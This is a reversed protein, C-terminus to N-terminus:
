LFSSISLVYNRSENNKFGGKPPDLKIRDGKSSFDGRMKKNPGDIVTYKGDNFLTVYGNAKKDKYTFTARGSPSSGWSGKLKTVSPFKKKFEGQVKKMKELMKPSGGGAKVLAKDGKNGIKKLAVKDSGSVEFKEKPKPITIKEEKVGPVPSKALGPNEKIKKGIDADRKGLAVMWNTIPQVKPKIYGDVFKGAVMAAPKVFIKLHASIMGGVVSSGYKKSFDDVGRTLMKPIELVGNILKGIGSIAGVIIKYIFSFCTRGVYSLLPIFFDTFGWGGEAENIEGSYTNTDFGANQKKSKKKDDDVDTTKGVNYNTTQTSASATGKLWKATIEVSGDANKTVFKQMFPAKLCFTAFFDGIWSSVGLAGALGKNTPNTIAAKTFKEAWAKTTKNFVLSAAGTGPAVNAPATIVDKIGLLMSVSGLILKATGKVINMAKDAKGVIKSGALIDRGGTYMGLGGGIMIFVAGIAGGVGPIGGLVAGIISCVIGIATAPDEKFFAAVSSAIKKCFNWVAKAGSSLADWAKVLKGGVYIAAKKVPEAVYKNYAGKLKNGFGGLYDMIGENIISPIKGSKLMEMSEQSIMYFVNEKVLFAKPIKGSPDDLYYVNENGDFWSQHHEHMLGLEYTCYAENLMMEREELSANENIFQGFFDSFDSFEWAAMCNEKVSNMQNIKSELLSEDDFYYSEDMSSFDDFLSIYKGM